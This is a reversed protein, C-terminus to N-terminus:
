KVLQCIVGLSLDATQFLHNLDSALDFLFYLIEGYFHKLLLQTNLVDAILVHVTKIFNVRIHSQV